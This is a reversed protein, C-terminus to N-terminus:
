KSSYITIDGTGTRIKCIGGEESPVNVEGTNSKADYSKPSLLTGFVRGTTTTIDLEAADSKELKIAGTSSKIIIKGSIVTNELTIGGTTSELSSSGAITDTISIKGTSCNVTLDGRSSLGTCTIQGTSAALTAGSVESDFISISGTDCAVYLHGLSQLSDIIISGTDSSVALSNHNSYGVRIAGTDTKIESILSASSYCKVAGTDSKAVIEEFSLKDPIVISGTDTNVHLSKYSEDPISLKVKFDFFTFGIKEFWSRSDVETIKLVGDEVTVTHYLKESEICEVLTGGDTSAVIEVM